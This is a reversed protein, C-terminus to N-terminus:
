NEYSLVNKCLINYDTFDNSDNSGLINGIYYFYYINNPKITDNLTNLENSYTINGKKSYIKFEINNDNNSAKGGYFSLKLNTNKLGITNIVFFDGLRPKESEYLQFYYYYKIYNNNIYCENDDEDCENCNKNCNNATKSYNIIYYNNFNINYVPRSPLANKDIVSPLEIKIVNLLNNSIQNISGSQGTSGTPGIPGITILANNGIPGIPGIKPNEDVPGIPGVIKNKIKNSLLFYLLTSILLILTIISYFFNLEEKM